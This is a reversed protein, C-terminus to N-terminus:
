FTFIHKGVETYTVVYQYLFQINIPVTTKRDNGTLCTRSFTDQQPGYSQECSLPGVGFAYQGTGCFTGDFACERGM